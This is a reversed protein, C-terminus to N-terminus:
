ALIVTTKVLGLQELESLYSEHELKKIYTQQSLATYIEVWV